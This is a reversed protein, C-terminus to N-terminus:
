LMMLMVLKIEKPDTVLETNEAIWELDSYEGDEREIAGNDFLYLDATIAYDANTDFETIYLYLLSHTRNVSLKGFTHKYLQGVEVTM